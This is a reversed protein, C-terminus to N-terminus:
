RCEREGIGECGILGSRVPAEGRSRLYDTGKDGPADPMFLQENLAYKTCTIKLNNPFREGIDLPKGRRTGAPDGLRGPQGRRGTVHGAGLRGCRACHSILVARHGARTCPNFSQAGTGIFRRDAIKSCLGRSM